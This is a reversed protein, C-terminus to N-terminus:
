GALDQTLELGVLTALQKDVCPVQALAARNIRSQEIIWVTSGMSNISQVSRNILATKYDGLRKHALLVALQEHSYSAYAERTTKLLADQLKRPRELILKKAAQQIHIATRESEPVTKLMDSAVAQAKKFVAFSNILNIALVSDTEGYAPVEGKFLVHGAQYAVKIGAIQQQALDVALEEVIEKEDMSSQLYSATQTKYLWLPVAFKFHKRESSWNALLNRAKSSNAYQAHEELMALVIQEHAKATDSDETLDHLEVSTKDYLTTLKNDPDYQYANGGSMGNCFGKGFTGINLVAGNTMYECGFDGVGEVVAM